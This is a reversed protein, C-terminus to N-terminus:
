RGFFRLFKYCGGRYEAPFLIRSNHKYAPLSFVEYEQFKSQLKYLNPTLQMHEQVVGVMINHTSFITSLIDAKYDSWGTPNYSIVSLESLISDMTPQTIPMHSMRIWKLIIM